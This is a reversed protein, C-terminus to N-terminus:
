QDLGVVVVDGAGTFHLADVVGATNDIYFPENAVLPYAGPNDAVNATVTIGTDATRIQIYRYGLLEDVSGPSEVAHVHGLAYHPEDSTKTWGTGLIQYTQISEGPEVKVNNGGLNPVIATTGTANTYTPM